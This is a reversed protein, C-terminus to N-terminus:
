GWERSKIGEKGKNLEGTYAGEESADVENNTGPRVM